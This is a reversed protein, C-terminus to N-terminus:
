SLYRSCKQTSDISRNYWLMALVSKIIQYYHLIVSARRRQELYNNALFLSSLLFLPKALKRSQRFAFM